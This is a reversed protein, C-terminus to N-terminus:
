SYVAKTVPRPTYGSETLLGFESGTAEILWGHSSFHTEGASNRPEAKQRLSHLAPYVLDLSAMEVASRQGNPAYRVKRVVAVLEINMQRALIAHRRRLKLWTIDDSIIM